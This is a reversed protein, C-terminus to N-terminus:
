GFKCFCVFISNRFAYVIQHFFVVKSCLNNVRLVAFLHNFPTQPQWGYGYCWALCFLHFLLPTYVLRGLPTYVLRGIPTYATRGLIIIYRKIIYFIHGAALLRVRSGFWFGVAILLVKARNNVVQVLLST